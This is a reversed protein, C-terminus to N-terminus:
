QSKHHACTVNPNFPVLMGNPNDRFVWIHQDYHPMFGHAEDGETAPDDAMAEWVKGNIEPMPKGGTKWAAEWVLNEIGVLVLTGDEQPEYLLISPQTFDTHTGTGDVRPEEATIGLRAPHIYHIGMAGLEPPLGEDGASVCQDSPDRIYGDALAITVDQYKEIAARVADIDVDEAFVRSSGCLFLAALLSCRAFGDIKSM